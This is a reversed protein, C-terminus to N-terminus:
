IAAAQTIPFTKGNVYVNAMREADMNAAVTYTVDGDEAQATEPAITLWDAFGDKTAIWSGSAGIGTMTVHFSGTEGEAPVEAATPNLAVPPVDPVAINLPRWADGMAGEDDANRVLVPPLNVNYLLKPYAAPEADAPNSALWEAVGREIENLM